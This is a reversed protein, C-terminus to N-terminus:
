IWQCSVQQHQCAFIVFWHNWSTADSQNSADSLLVALIFWSVSHYFLSNVICRFVLVIILDFWFMDFGSVVYDVYDDFQICNCQFVNFLSSVCLVDYFLMQLCNWVNCLMVCWSVDYCITMCWLPWNDLEWLAKMATNVQGLECADSYECLRDYFILSAESGHQPLIMPAPAVQPTGPCSHILFSWLHDYTTLCESWSVVHFLVSHLMNM